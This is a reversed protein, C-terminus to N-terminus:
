KKQLEKIKDILKKVTDACFYDTNGKGGRILEEAEEGIGDIFSDNCSVANLMSTITDTIKATMEQLVAEIPEIIKQKESQFMDKSDERVRRRYEEELRKFAHLPDIPVDNISMKLMRPEENLKDWAKDEEGYAAGTLASILFWNLFSYSGENFVHSVDSGNNTDSPQM